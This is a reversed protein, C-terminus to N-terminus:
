PQGVCFARTVWDAGPPVYGASAPLASALVTGITLLALFTKM